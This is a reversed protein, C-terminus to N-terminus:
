HDHAFRCIAIIILAFGGIFMTVFLSVAMWVLITAIINYIILLMDMLRYHTM